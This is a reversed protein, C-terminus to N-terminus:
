DKAPRRSRPRGGGARQPMPSWLKPAALVADWTRKTDSPVMGATVAWIAATSEYWWPTAGCAMWGDPLPFQGRSRRAALTPTKMGVGKAIDELALPREARLMAPPVDVEDDNLRRSAM